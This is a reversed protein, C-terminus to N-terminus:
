LFFFFRGSWASDGRTFDEAARNAHSLFSLEACKAGNFKLYKSKFVCLYVRRAFPLGLGDLGRSYRPRLPVPKTQQSQDARARAVREAGFRFSPLYRRPEGDGRVFARSHGAGRAIRPWANTETPRISRIESGAAAILMPRSNALTIALLPPSCSSSFPFSSILTSSSSTAAANKIWCVCRVRDRERVESDHEHVRQRV